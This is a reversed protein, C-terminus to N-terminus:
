SGALWVLTAMRGTTGDRRYSFFRVADSYTCAGGGYVATVGCAALRLRALAHLDAFWRGEAGPTFAGAARADRDVFAARVEGGVEFAAPGIAPGLWALLDPPAAPLRAVTAELVGAALGRWGAHAAAVCSGARDAFVVPLCDATLVACVVGPRDTWAADAEPRPGATAADVVRDGHVQQLWVPAAPLGLVARLHARNAAVASPTDGVHDAPNMSSWAGTSVGGARTTTVAHVAAPAPWDPVLWDYPM